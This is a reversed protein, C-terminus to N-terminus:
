RGQQDTLGATMLFSIGMFFLASVTFYAGLELHFYNEYVTADLYYQYAQLLSAILHTVGLALFFRSPYKNLIRWKMRRTKPFYFPMLIFSWWAIATPISYVMKYRNERLYTEYGDGRGGGEDPMTYIARVLPELAMHLHANAPGVWLVVQEGKSSSM